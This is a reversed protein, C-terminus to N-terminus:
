ARGRSGYEPSPALQGPSRCQRRCVGLQGVSRWLSRVVHLPQDQAPLPLHAVHHAGLGAVLAGRCPHEGESDVAHCHDEHEQHETRAAPEGATFGTGRATRCEQGLPDKLGDEAVLGNPLKGVPCPELQHDPGLLHIGDLLRGQVRCHGGCLDTGPLSVPDVISSREDLGCFSDTPSAILGFIIQGRAAKRLAGGALGTITDAPDTWALAAASVEASSDPEPQRGRAPTSRACAAMALVETRVETAAPRVTTAKAPAVPLPLDLRKLTRAPASTACTPTRRGVVDFGVAAIQPLSDGEARRSQSITPARCMTSRSSGWGCAGSSSPRTRSSRGSKSEWAAACRMSASRTSSRTSTNM